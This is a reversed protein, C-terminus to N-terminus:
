IRIKEKKKGDKMEILREAPVVVEEVKEAIGELELESEIAAKVKNEHGSMVRVTYWKKEVTSGM